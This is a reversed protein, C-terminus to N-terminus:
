SARSETNKGHHADLLSPRRRLQKALKDTINQQLLGNARVLLGQSTKQM